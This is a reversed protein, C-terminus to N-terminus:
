KIFTIKIDFNLINIKVNNNVWLFTKIYAISIVLQITKLMLILM